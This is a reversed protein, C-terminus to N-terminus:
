MDIALSPSPWAGIMIILCDIKERILVNIKEEAVCADDIFDSIKIFDFEENKLSKEARAAFDEMIEKSESKIPSIEQKITLVILGIKPRIKDM